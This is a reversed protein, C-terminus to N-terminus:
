AFRINFEPCVPLCYGCALCKEMNISPRDSGMTIAGSPCTESCLRCKRCNNLIVPKKQKRDLCQNLLETRGSTPIVISFNYRADNMFIRINKYIEKGM